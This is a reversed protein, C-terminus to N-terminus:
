RRRIREDKKTHERRNESKELAIVSSIVRASISQALSGKPPRVRAARLLGEAMTVTGRGSRDGSWGDITLGAALRPGTGVGDRADAGRSTDHDDGATDEHPSCNWGARM